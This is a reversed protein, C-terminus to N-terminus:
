SMAPLARTIRGFLQFVGCQHIGGRRSIGRAVAGRWFDRWLGSDALDASCSRLARWWWRRGLVFLLVSRVDGAAIGRAEAQVILQRGLGIRRSVVMGLLTAASMIGFGGVHFLVWIVGQGFGTWYIATDVTSLGTVGVASTAVFLATLFPAGEGETRAIPLM